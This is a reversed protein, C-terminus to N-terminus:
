IRALFEANFKMPQVRDMVAFLVGAAANVVDDHAGPPHDISDRGGRATRRELSCTQNVLRPLDLYQVRASNLMPLFAQYIESKTEESVEYSVGNARFRERPWEGAYRDGRVQNIRYAKLTGAFESVVGEPSFPPPVERVCDLVGREGELHAIALTMSDASGGSPDVFARYRTGAVPGIERVGRAVLAKVVASDVFAAVDSRFEGGYEAAAALPDDEYRADIEARDVAPHMTWTAAKWVLPAGPRHKEGYHNDYADWLVGRRAYPSSAGFLMSNPITLMSPKIAALIERDPNASADDTQWFAIEDCLAAITTPSRVARFSATAVRITVSGILDVSEAAPPKALLRSLRPHDLFAATVYGVITSAQLRFAALISLYGREGPALYQQWDFCVALYVALLALVRSKGGRRGIPMWCERAPETPPDQRGTCERFIALEQADDIPVGFLAKIFVRWARWEETWWTAGMVEGIFEVPRGAYSRAWGVPDDTEEHLAKTLRTELERKGALTFMRHLVDQPIQRPNVTSM